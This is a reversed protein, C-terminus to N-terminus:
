TLDVIDGTALGAVPVETRVRKGAPAEHPESRRQQEHQHIPQQPLLNHAQGLDAGEQRQQAEMPPVAPELVPLPLKQLEAEISAAYASLQARGPGAEALWQQLMARIDGAKHAFHARLAPAFVPDPARLTELLALRATQVRLSANYEASRRRGDPTAASSEYGPENFYPDPVFVM